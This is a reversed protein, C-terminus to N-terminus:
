PQFQIVATFSLIKRTIPNGNGDQSTVPACAVYDQSIIAAKSPTGFNQLLADLVGPADVFIDMLGTFRDATTRAVDFPAANCENFFGNVYSSQFFAAASASAKQVRISTLGKGPAQSQGTVDIVITAIVGPGTTKGAPTLAGGGGRVDSAGLLSVVGVLTLIAATRKM